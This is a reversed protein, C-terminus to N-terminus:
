EAGFRQEEEAAIPLHYVDEAAPFPVALNRDSIDAFRNFFDRLLQTVKRKKEQRANGFMSMPPLLSAIETGAEEMQGDKFARRMFKYTEDKKLNETEIIQNLQEIRQIKIYKTWEETITTDPALAEVFKEILDKKNRLDPSSEIAKIIRVDIEKDEINQDHYQEILQLIYDINIEVQKILEIEFVLDDNVNVVDGDIQPRYKDKLDLYMSRYDQEAFDSLLRHQEFQDFTSIINRSRLYTGFLRIFDKEKQEGLIIQGIPYSDKLVEVLEKYGPFHKTKGDKQVEDYGYYYEDFTKLLVLGGADADGFLAISDNTAQELNRFCIINGFTKITNLIRNTRSYAQMLGHMKLNKDVWLTNLTTADFGTLFMNVVILMDLERNKMRLSVDKYYNAFRDASTDFNTGFLQNYDKIASELFERSPTDLATTDDSNEEGLFGSDQLSAICQTEVTATATVSAICQTEVDENAAYSFITAIKLRRDSSLGEQQKKFEEYYLKAAPISATAFISNFGNVRKDKLAYWSNRKTKQDFHELIYKTIMSVREPALLAEEREIDLVKQDAINQKAEITKIYEVRFPLVNQDRIADIVTYVHLQDGFRQQTTLLQGGANQPFIPTGTFGFLYYKKFKKVISNHMDGFQSRHCEDFILVVRKGYVEHEKNKGVFISLKQITTIIIHANPDELQKKLKETSKNSNAAGKEFRDYEKMTQYDLDKRDVVFLVKDIFDFKSAMRAAKFSTLTKGSGTTHWVYGGAEITGAKGRNTAQQIRLLIAETACIQYPRMVLLLDESTFICYKLLVSLITHKQFFTATFDELDLIPTNERDAWYSTFEFSNSTQSRRQQRQLSPARGTEVRNVHSYRTTNSYYKTETGNSIVFLQVYEFLGCDAWFSDRNYRRIQNFAEKIAVGRRKLEVHVLPLGNVLITVDYRNQFNGGTPTYQNLVQLHNKHINKKNLLLINRKEGNDCTLVITSNEQVTRTKEVIGSNASAIYKTFLTNWENETFHYDNLTEIQKRLNAILGKETTINLREYGQEVLQAIFTRELEAESQYTTSVCHMADGCRMADGRHRHEFKAVVTSQPNESIINYAEM